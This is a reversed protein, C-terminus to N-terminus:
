QTEPRASLGGDTRRVWVEHLVEGWALSTGVVRGRDGGSWGRGVRVGDRGCAEGAMVGAVSEASWEISSRGDGVAVMM